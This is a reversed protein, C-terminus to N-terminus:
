GLRLFHRDHSRGRGLTWERRKREFIRLHSNIAICRHHCATQHFSVTVASSLQNQAESISVDLLLLLPSHDGSLQSSQRPLAGYCFYVGFDVISIDPLISIRATPNEGDQSFAIPKHNFHAALLHLYKGFRLRLE